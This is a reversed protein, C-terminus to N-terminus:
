RWSGNVAQPLKRCTWSSRRKSPPEADRGAGVVAAEVVEVGSVSAKSSTVLPVSSTTSMVSDPVAVARLKLMYTCFQDSLLSVHSM